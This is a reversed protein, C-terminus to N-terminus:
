PCQIGNQFIAACRRGLINNSLIESFTPIAFGTWIGKFVIFSFNWTGRTDGWFISLEDALPSWGRVRFNKPFFKIFFIEAFSGGISLEKHPPPYNVPIYERIGIQVDSFKASVHGSCPFWRAPPKIQNGQVALTVVACVVIAGVVVIHHFSKDLPFSEAVRDRLRM